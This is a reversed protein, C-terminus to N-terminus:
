NKELKKFLKGILVILLALGGIWGVYLLIKLILVKTELTSAVVVFAGISRFCTPVEILLVLCLIVLLYIYLRKRKM